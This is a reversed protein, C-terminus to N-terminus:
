PVAEPSTGCQPVTNMLYSYEAMLYRLPHSQNYNESSIFEGCPKIDTAILSEDKYRQVQRAM